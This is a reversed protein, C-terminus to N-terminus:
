KAVPATQPAPTWLHFLGSLAGALVAAGLAKWSASTGDVTVSSAAGIAGGVVSALLSKLFAAM